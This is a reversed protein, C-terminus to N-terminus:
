ARSVEGSVAHVSGDWGYVRYRCVDGHRWLDEHPQESHRRSGTQQNHVGGRRQHHHLQGVSRSAASLTATIHYTPPSASEGAVRSYTATVPDTFNTGSGTTLPIPDADGYTKSAPDTTWTALRKDITFEAGTNTIIYNDLASLPTASLTAM